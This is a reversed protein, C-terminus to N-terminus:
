SETCENVWQLYSALGRQVPLALIEPVEYPHLEVLLRELEDYRAATTKIMLGAEQESEVRGQWTYFSQLM